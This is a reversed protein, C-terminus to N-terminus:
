PPPHPDSELHASEASLPATQAKDALYPLKEFSAQSPSMDDVRGLYFGCQLGPKWGPSEPCRFLLEQALAQTSEAM